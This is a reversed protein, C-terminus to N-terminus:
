NKIMGKLQYGGEFREISGNKLIWKTGSPLNGVGSLNLELPQQSIIPEKVMVALAEQLIASLILSISGQNARLDDNLLQVYTEPTGALTLTFLDTIPDFDIDVGMRMAVYARVEVSGAVPSSPNLQQLNLTTVMEVDGVGVDLDHGYISKMFVPPAHMRVTASAKALSPLQPIKFKFEKTVDMGGGYWVAWLLENLLDDRMNFGFTENSSLTLPLPAYNPHSILAGKNSGLVKEDDRIYAPIPDVFKEECGAAVSPAPHGKKLFTDKPCIWYAGVTTLGTPIGPKPFLIKDAGIILGAPMPRISEYFSFEVDQRENNKTFQLQNFGILTGLTMPKPLTIAMQRDILASYIANSLSEHIKNELMSAGATIIKDHLVDMAKNVAANTLTNRFDLRLDNIKISVPQRNAVTMEGNVVPMQLHGEIIFSDFKLSGTDTLSSAAGSMKTHMVFPFDLAGMSFKYDIGGDVIRIYDIVPKELSYDGSRRVTYTAVDWDLTGLVGTIPISGKGKALIEDPALLDNFETSLVTAQLAAQVVSAVDNLTSRDADDIFTQTLRANFANDVRASFKPSLQYSQMLYSTNGCLDEAFGTIIGLGISSKQPQNGFELSRPTIKFRPASPSFASLSRAAAMLDVGNLFARKINSSADMVTGSIAITTSDQQIQAARLPSTINWVPPTADVFLSGTFDTVQHDRAPENTLTMTFNIPGDQAIKYHGGVLTISGPPNATIVFQAPVLNDWADFANASAPFADGKRACPPASFHPTWHHAKGASVTVVEPTNDALSTDQAKCAVNYWGARTLSFVHDNQSLGNNTGGDAGIVVVMAAAGTLNGFMDHLECTVNAPQTPLLTKNSVITNVVRSPGPAFDIVIQVPDIKDGLQCAFAYSGAMTIPQTLDVAPSAIIKFDDSIIPNNFRDYGLCDVRALDGAYLATNNALTDVIVVADADVKLIAASLDRNQGDTGICAVTYTGSTQPTIKFTNNGLNQANIAPSTVVDFPLDHNSRCQVTVEAGATVTLSTGTDAEASALQTDVAVATTTTPETVTAPSDLTAAGVNTDPISPHTAESVPPTPTQGTAHPVITHDPIPSAPASTQGCSILLGVVFVLVLRPYVTM